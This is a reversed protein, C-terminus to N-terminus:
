GLEGSEASLGPWSAAAALVGRAVPQGPRPSVLLLLLVARNCSLGATSHHKHDCLPTGRTKPDPCTDATPCQPPPTHVEDGSRQDHREEKEEEERGEADGRSCRGSRRRGELRRPFVVSAAASWRWLSWALSWSSRPSLCLPSPRRRVRWALAITVSRYCARRLTQERDGSRRQSAAASCVSRANTNTHSHM